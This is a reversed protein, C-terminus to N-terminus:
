CSVAVTKDCAEKVLETVMDRMERTALFTIDEFDGANNRRSPMALWLGKESEMLRIGKVVLCDFFKVAATGHLQGKREPVFGLVKVFAKTDEADNSAEKLKNLPDAWHAM